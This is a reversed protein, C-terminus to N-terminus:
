EKGIKEGLEKAEETIDEPIKFGDNLFVHYGYNSECVTGDIFHLDVTIIDQKRPVEEEPIEILVFM